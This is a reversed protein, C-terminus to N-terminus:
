HLKEIRLSVSNAVTEIATYPSGNYVYIAVADDVSLTCLVSESANIYVLSGRLWGMQAYAGPVDAWSGDYKRLYWGMNVVKTTDIIKFSASYSVEYRGATRVSVSCADVAHAFIGDEFVETDLNIYVGAATGISQGGGADYAYFISDRSTQMSDMRAHLSDKHALLTDAEAEVSDMDAKLTDIDVDNATIWESFKQNGINAQIVDVSDIYNVPNQYAHAMRDDYCILGSCIFLLSLFAIIPAKSSRHLSM